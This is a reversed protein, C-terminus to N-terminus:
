IMAPFLNEYLSTNDLLTVKENGTCQFVVTICRRMEHNKFSFETSLTNWFLLVFWLEEEANQNRGQRRIHRGVRRRRCHIRRM